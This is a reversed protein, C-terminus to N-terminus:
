DAEGTTAKFKTRNKYPKGSIIAVTEAVYFGTSNPLTYLSFYHGNGSDTMTLSNVLTESGDYIATHISTPTFGSNVWTVQLTDGILRKKIISM